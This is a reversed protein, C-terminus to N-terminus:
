HREAKHWQATGIKGALDWVPNEERKGKGEKRGEEGEQGHGGLFCTHPRVLAIVLISAVHRMTKERLTPEHSPMTESADPKFRPGDAINHGHPWNPAPKTSSRRPRPRASAASASLRARRAPTRLDARRRGGEGPRAAALLPADAEPGRRDRRHQRLRDLDEGLRRRVEGCIQCLKEKHEDALFCNEFIVKVQRGGRPRSRRRRSTAACRLGLRREAGQRHQRGHRTRDAGDDCPRRPRPWRSRRHPPRRPSLRHHHRRRGDLRGADRGRPTVYYPKICVSAVDYELALRCGAELEADTLVQQLLSHDIMKALDQYTPEPM